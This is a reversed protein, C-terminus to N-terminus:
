FVLAVATAEAQNTYSTAVTQEEIGRASLLLGALGRRKFEALVIRGIEIDDTSKIVTWPVMGDSFLLLTGIEDHRFTREWMLDLLEPQGNLIGYGQPSERCNVNRRRAAMLTPYFRNWMEARIQEREQTPADELTLDFMEQAVERQIREIEAQMEADHARVQNPPSLSKM